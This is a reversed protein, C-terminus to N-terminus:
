GIPMSVIWESVLNPEILPFSLLALLRAHNHTHSVANKRSGKMMRIVSSLSFFPTSLFVCTYLVYGAVLDIGNDITRLNSLYM